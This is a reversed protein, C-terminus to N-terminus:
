IYKFITKAYNEASNQKAFSKMSSFDCFETSPSVLFQTLGKAIESPVSSDVTIGLKHQKVMQGMLGYNSALVPKQAAAARVLIASMGIHHIYPALIVDTVQFYPQIEQDPVFQDHSIIQIPLAEALETIRTKILPESGIPGVLLLCLQQCLESPLLEIADLLQYIGKRKQLVGFMLFVKKDPDIGLTQRMKQSQTESTNYIQVPDPLYIAKVNGKFKRIREAAFPDLCFLTQFNSNRLLRSLVFNDRRQLILEHGSPMFEAFESYHFIPRFYIGSFPCPPRRRLALSLLISDFYMLLCQTSGLQKAYKYFLNWEQFSRVIRNLSSDEFKLLAEEEPSIAVFNINNEADKLAIDIVDPHM